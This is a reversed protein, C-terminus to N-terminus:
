RATKASSPQVRFVTRGPISTATVECRNAEVIARVIALGLGTGERANGTTFFRDFVKPLNAPSIGPGGDVIAFGEPTIEAIIPQGGHIEANEILNRVVTTWSAPDGPLQLTSEGVVPIGTEQLVERVDTLVASSQAEARALDLLGNVMRTLRDLDTRANNVFVALQPPPLDGESLLEVFGRLTTLPTKFEHAMNAALDRNYAIRARLRETVAAFSLALTRVELVRSRALGLLDGQPGSELRQSVIALNKLSRSLRWSVFGLFGVSLALTVSGRPGLGTAMNMLAGSAERTPRSLLLVEGGSLPATAVAWSVPIEKRFDLRSEGVVPTMQTRGATAYGGALAAQVEARDSLDAGMRPGSSAIVVGKADLIRVGASAIEHLSFVLAQAAPSQWDTRCAAGTGPCEAAILRAGLRAAMGMEERRETLLDHNLAGGLVMLGLPLTFVGCYSAILLTQLSLGAELLRRGAGAM